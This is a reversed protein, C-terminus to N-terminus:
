ARRREAVGAHQRDADGVDVLHGATADLEAEARPPIPLLVLRVTQRERVDGLAEVTEGLLQLDIVPSHCVRGPSRKSKAPSCTTSRSEGASGLGTCCGTGIMTPPAPRRRVGSSAARKAVSNLM